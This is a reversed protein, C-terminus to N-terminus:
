RNPPSRSTRRSRAPRSRRRIREPWAGGVSLMTTMCFTRRHHLPITCFQDRYDDLSQPRGTPSATTLRCWLTRILQMFEDTSPHALQAGLAALDAREINAERQNQAAAMVVSLVQKIWVGSPLEERPLGKQMALPSLADYDYAYPGSALEVTTTELSQQM